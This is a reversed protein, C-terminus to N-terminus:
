AFPPPDARTQPARGPFPPLDPEPPLDALAAVRPVPTPAPLVPAVPRLFRQLRKM